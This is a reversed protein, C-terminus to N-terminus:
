AHGVTLAVSGRMRHSLPMPEVAEFKLSDADINQLARALGRQGACPEAFFLLGRVLVQSVCVYVRAPRACRTNPVAGCADCVGPSIASM